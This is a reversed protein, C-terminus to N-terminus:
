FYGRKNLEFDKQKNEFEQIFEKVTKGDLTIDGKVGLSSSLLNAVIELIKSVDSKKIFLIKSFKVKAKTPNNSDEIIVNAMGFEEKLEIGSQKIQNLLESYFNFTYNSIRIQSDLLYSLSVYGKEELEKHKQMVKNIEKQIKPNEKMIKEISINEM